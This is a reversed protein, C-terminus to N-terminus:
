PLHSASRAGDTGVVWDYKANEAIVAGDAKSILLKVDVTNEDQVLSDLCMGLEVECGYKKLHDRM